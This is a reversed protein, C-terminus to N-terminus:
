RLKEFRVTGDDGVVRRFAKSAAPMPKIPDAAAVKLTEAVSIRKPKPASKRVPRQPAVDNLAPEGSELSQATALQGPIAMLNKAITDLESVLRSTDASPLTSMQGQLYSIRSNTENILQQVGSNTAELKAALRSELGSVSDVKALLGAVKETANLNRYSMVSLMIAAAFVLTSFGFLAQAGPIRWINPGEQVHVPQANYRSLYAGITAAAEALQDQRTHLAIQDFKGEPKIAPAASVQVSNDTDFFSTDDEARDWRSRPTEVVIPTSSELTAPRKSDAQKIRYGGPTLDPFMDVPVGGADGHNIAADRGNTESVAPFIEAPLARDFITM